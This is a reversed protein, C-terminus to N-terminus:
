QITDDDASTDQSLTGAYKVRYIRRLCDDIRQEDITGDKVADIVGNYALEFDEPMLLIDVGAKIAKIAAEDSGYYESVAGMNLADTIIIGEYGYEDRLIGQVVDKSLSCPTNDGTIEPAAFHGVMIMDVGADIGAKFSVLECEDMETKTKSTMAITEHTDADVDGQGPFHKLCASVGADELGTVASPILGAVIASDDSFARKGIASNESNTLVDAVPAFDVNFGYDMLYTGINNYTSYVQTTDNNTGLEQATKSKELKLGAQVRAVDGGEEDVALFLPYRSYSKTNTLMERVQAEGTINQKFYVLGGVAYKDLAAKTGDGAKTVSNQGTLAEPTIIFLGAVKDELSMEAIMSDIMEEFLEEETPEPEPEPEDVIIEPEDELEPTLDVTPIEEIVPEAEISAVVEPEVPKPNNNLLIYAAVGGIAVAFVALIVCVTALKRDHKRKQRRMERREEPKLSTDSVASKSKKMKSLEAEVQQTNIERTMVIEVGDMIDENDSRESSDTKDNKHSSVDDDDENMDIIDDIDKLM